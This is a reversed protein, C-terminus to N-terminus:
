IKMFVNTDQCNINKNLCTTSLPIFLKEVAELLGLKLKEIESEGAISEELFKNEWLYWYSMM